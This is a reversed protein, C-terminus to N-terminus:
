LHVESIASAAEIELSVDTNHKKLERRETYIRQVKGIGM